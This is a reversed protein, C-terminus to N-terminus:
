SIATHTGKSPGLKSCESKYAFKIVKLLQTNNQIIKKYNKDFIIHTIYVYYVCQATNHAKQMHLNHLLLNQVAFFFCSLCSDITFLLCHTM